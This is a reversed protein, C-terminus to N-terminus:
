QAGEFLPRGFGNSVFQAVAITTITQARERGFIRSLVVVVFVVCSFIRGGERKDSDKM